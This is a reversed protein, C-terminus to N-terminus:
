KVIIKRSWHALRIQSNLQVERRRSFNPHALLKALTCTSPSKLNTNVVPPQIQPAASLQFISFFEGGTERWGVATAASEWRVYMRESHTYM